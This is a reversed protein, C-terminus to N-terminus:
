LTLNHNQIDHTRIGSLVRSFLNISLYIEKKNAIQLLISYCLLIMAFRILTTRFLGGM